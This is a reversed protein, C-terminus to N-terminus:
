VIYLIYIDGDVGQASTPETTGSLVTNQKTAIAQAVATGSQANASTADYNQNVVPRNVWETDYDTNSAKALLQGTTGGAVIGEGAPGQPGTAGQPGQIGQPGQEGQIGQAGTEGQPGTEGQEGQPGQIGQIGQPGQPGTAGTAGTEGQPGQPGQPGQLQGINTWQTNDVDWIYIYNNSVTGVAYSDGANGTPHATQLDLLTPYLSLVVFDKGDAGDDGKLGQPGRPGQAGTAGTPGTAGQAGAPGQIGQVGAPGQIGQLGREGQEGKEGQIGQVGQPGQPGTDGKQGKIGTVITYVGDDDVDTDVFKLKSRQPLSETIGGNEVFIEHGASSTNVLEGEPETRYKILGQDDVVLQIPKDDADTSVTNNIFDKVEKFPYSLEKRVEQEGSPEVYGKTADFVIDTSSSDFNGYNFKEM